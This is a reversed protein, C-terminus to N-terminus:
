DAGGRSGPESWNQAEIASTGNNNAQVIEIRVTFKITSDKYLNGMQESFKVKTMLPPAEDGKTLVSRYYYYGDTHLMWHEENIDYGVLSLDIEAEKGRANSALTIDSRLSVRVYVPLDGTNQATVTKSIEYGPMIRIAEGPEVAMDSGYPYTVDVVQVSVTGSGITNYRTTTSDSFYALTSCVFSIVTLIMVSCMVIIKKKTATM